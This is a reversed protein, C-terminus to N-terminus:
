LRIVRGRDYEFFGHFAGYCGGSLLSSVVAYDCEGFRVSLGCGVSAQHPTNIVQVALGCRKLTDFFKMGQTRSGFAAFYYRM